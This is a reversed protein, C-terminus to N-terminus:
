GVGEGREGKRMYRMYHDIHIRNLVFFTDTGVETNEWTRPLFLLLRTDIRCAM